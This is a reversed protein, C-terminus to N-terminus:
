PDTAKQQCYVRAMEFRKLTWNLPINRYTWTPPVISPSLNASPSQLNQTNALLQRMNLAHGKPLKRIQEVHKPTQGYTYEYLELNEPSEPQSM